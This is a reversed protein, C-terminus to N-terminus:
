AAASVTPVGAGLAPVPGHHHHHPPPKVVEGGRLPLPAATSRWNREDAVSKGAHAHGAGSGSGSGSGVVSGPHRHHHHHSHQSGWSRRFAKSSSSSPSKKPSPSREHRAPSSSSLGSATTQTGVSHMQQPQPHSRSHREHVKKQNVPSRDRPEARGRVPAEVVGHVKEVEGHQQQQQQQHHAAWYELARRKKRSVVIEPVVERLGEKVEVPMRALPSKALALLDERSYVLSSSSSSTASTSTTSDALSEARSSPRSSAGSDSGSRQRRKHVPVYLGAASGFSSLSSVSYAPSHPTRLDSDGFTTTTTTSIPALKIATPTSRFM